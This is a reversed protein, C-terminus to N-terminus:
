RGCCVSVRTEGETEVTVRRRGGARDAERDARRARAPAPAPRSDGLFVASFPTGRRREPDLRRDRQPRARPAPPRLRAAQRERQDPVELPLRGPRDARLRLDAARDRRTQEAIEGARAVLADRGRRPPRRRRRDRDADRPRRRGAGRGRLRRHVRLRGLPAAAARRAPRDGARGGRARRRRARRRHDGRLPARRGGRRGRLLGADGRHRGSYSSCLVARDTATWPPLEYDRFILMPRDLADGMAARALVGGIASGGMGCVILGSAEEPELRASEVRWLADRLHDPLALVDDLQGSPDIARIADVDSVGCRRKSWRTRAAIARAPPSRRGPRSRAGARRDRQRGRDDRRRRGRRGRALISGRVEAEAGVRCGDLLVRDRRDLRRRRGDCGSRVVARAEVTAGAAIEAGRDGVFPAAPRRDARDRRPGRPHGLEGAPLAGAHRHGDLVRRPPPRLPGPRGARPFVEREISVARGRPILDLVSREIVYAGANVEDTDIEAPDPKELFGLVEGDERAACSGTPARTTSRTAPRAHDGRRDGRAPASLATLDLDTLVDGNLVMFRDDLLGRDAALRVPGATGLPEPEEIYRIAPRRAGRRRAGRAPGRGQLRLGHDGRRDRPARALRGHLPHVPRDVLALAPKPQTLTLPRLRTGEGGVLVLAQMLERFRGARRGAVSARTPRLRRRAHAGPRPLQPRGRDAPEVDAGRAGGLRARRVRAVRHGPDRRRRGRAGRRALRALEVSPLMEAAPGEAVPDYAVVSAGEGQLRAALVLSSAERMDDTNPKFALGLLAVRKGVLSGLHKSLKSIVRRKQLENVEIVSNLLQFHYGTNGALMKLASVDKPFCSGGYGIGAQLFQPGIREDLGMGRAVENVDAGVGECVNAIENIFSIKTALFANSALKIMEASAVDTRVLEGGLPEYAAAVADAAWESGPDAGVVVRDPELFDKVASGEKLFEPCSVYVLDPKSRRIAAGTGAPVTSKMVLAHESGAPLAAVVAEVRSLDADGSYTPPTDVCCFLLRAAELVEPMETTFTLRERNREVLEPLGPEHIPLPAGARLAEVKEEDIDVAVM